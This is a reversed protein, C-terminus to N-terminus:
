CHDHNGKAQADCPRPQGCKFDPRWSVPPPDHYGAFGECVLKRLPLGVKVVGKPALSIRTSIAAAVAAAAPGVAASWATVAAATGAALHLLGLPPAIALPAAAAAATVTWFVVQRVRGKRKFEYLEVCWKWYPRLAVDFAQREVCGRAGATTAEIVDDRGPQRVWQERIESPQPYRVAVHTMKEQDSWPYRYLNPDPNAPVWENPDALEHCDGTISPTAPCM